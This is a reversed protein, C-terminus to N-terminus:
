KTIILCIPSYAGAEGRRDVFKEVGTTEVVHGCSTDVVKVVVRVKTELMFLLIAM